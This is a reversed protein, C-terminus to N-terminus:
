YGKGSTQFLPYWVAPFFRFSDIKFEKATINLEMEGIYVSPIDPCLMKIMDLHYPKTAALLPFKSKNKKILIDIIYTLTLYIEGSNARLIYIDDHHKDFYKFYKKKFIDMLYITYVVKNFLSFKYSNNEEFRKILSYGLFKIEKSSCDNYPNNTKLTTVIGGFFTQTRAATMYDSTQVLVPVGLIKATRKNEEKIYEYFKLKFWGM